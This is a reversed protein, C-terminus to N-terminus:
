SKQQMQLRMIELQLRLQETRQREVELRQRETELRVEEQRMRLEHERIKDAEYSEVLEASAVCEYPEVVSDMLDVARSLTFTHSLCFLEKTASKEGAVRYEDGCHAGYVKLLEGFQTEIELSKLNPQFYACVEFAVFLPHDVAAFKRDHAENRRFVSRRTEGYKVLVASNTVTPTANEPVIAGVVVMYVGTEKEFRATPVPKLGSLALLELVMKRVHAKRECAGDRPDNIPPLAAPPEPARGAAGDMYAVVIDAFRRRMHAARRGPLVMVLMCIGTRDMTPTPKQGRGPFQINQVSNSVEPHAARLNSWAKHPHRTDCFVAIVDFVSALRGDPTVRVNGNLGDVSDSGDFVLTRSAGGLYITDARDVPAALAGADDPWPMEASVNYTPTYSYLTPLRMPPSPADEDSEASADCPTKRREHARMAIAHDTSFSCKPCQLRM